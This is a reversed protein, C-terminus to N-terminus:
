RRAARAIEVFATAAPSLPPERHLVVVTRTLPPDLRATVAGASRAAEAAPSPLFTAGGGALVLPVIPERQSTEVAIEPEVGAALFARDLLQRTSTRSPTAVLPVGALDAVAICGRKGLASDPPLVVVIEQEGFVDVVLPTPHHPAETLAVDSQGTRIRHEIDAPDEPEALHVTVGPHRHRFAGLLRVLPEVSLTPLCVLDLHGRELDIVSTVAATLADADRLLRHAHDIFAQGAATARIRQGSRVFLEVGLERETRRVAQSLAPQSM